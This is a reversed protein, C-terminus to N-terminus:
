HEDGGEMFVDKDTLCGCVRDAYRIEDLLHGAIVGGYRGELWEGWMRLTM